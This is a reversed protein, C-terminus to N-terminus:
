LVNVIECLLIETRNGLKTDNFISGYPFFFLEATNNEDLPFDSLKGRGDRIFYGLNM